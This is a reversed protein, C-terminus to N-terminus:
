PRPLRRDARCTAIPLATGGRVRTVRESRRDITVNLCACTYGYNGNRRVWRRDPIDPMTEMGPAEYGGQASLTWSGDRDTLWWNGPTPNDLWGCRREIAAPPAPAAPAAALLLALMSALAIM